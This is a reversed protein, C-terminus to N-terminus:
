CVIYRKNVILKQIDEVSFFETSEFQNIYVVPARIVASSYDSFKSLCVAFYLENLQETIKPVLNGQCRTQGIGFSVSYYRHISVQLMRRCGNFYHQLFEPLPIVNDISVPQAILGTQKFIQGTCYKVPYEPFNGAEVDLIIRRIESQHASLHDLNKIGHLLFVPKKPAHSGPDPTVM